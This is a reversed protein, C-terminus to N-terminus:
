HDVKNQETHAFSHPVALAVEVGLHRQQADIDGQQGEHEGEQAAYAVGAAAVLSRWLDVVAVVFDWLFVAVHLGVVDRARRHRRQEVEEQQGRERPVCHVARLQHQQDAAHAATQGWVPGPQALGHAPTPTGDSPRPPSM